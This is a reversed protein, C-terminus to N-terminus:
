FGVHCKTFYPCKQNFRVCSQTNAPVDAEKKSREFRKHVESRINTALDLSSQFVNQADRFEIAPVNWVTTESTLRKGYEPLTEAIKRREQPKRTTEYVVGLFGNPDLGMSKSVVDRHTVYTVVQLDNPLMFRKDIDLRSVTKTEAIWWKGMPDVRVSDIFGLIQPTEIKFERMRVDPLTATARRHGLVMSKLADRYPYLDEKLDGLSMKDISDSIERDSCHINTVSHFATGMMLAEVSPQPEKLIYRYLYEKPCRFLTQMQSASLRGFSPLTM